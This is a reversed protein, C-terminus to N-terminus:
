AVNEGGGSDSDPSQYIDNWAIRNYWNSKDVLVENDQIFNHVKSILEQAQLEEEDTMKDSYKTLYHEVKHVCRLLIGLDGGKESSSQSVNLTGITFEFLKNIVEVKELCRVRKYTDKDLQKALYAHIGEITCTGSKQDHRADDISGPIIDGLSDQVRYLYNVAERSSWFPSLEIIDGSDSEVVRPLGVNVSLLNQIVVSDTLASQDFPGVERCTNVLREGDVRYHEHHGHGYGSNYVRFNCQGNELKVVEYYMAHGEWGAIFGGSIMMKEGPELLTIEEQVAASLKAMGDKYEQMKNADGYNEAEWRLMYLDEVHKQVAASREMQQRVPHDEPVGIDSLIQCYSRVATDGAMGQLRPDSSAAISDLTCHIAVRQIHAQGPRYQRDANRATSDPDATDIIVPDIYSELSQNIISNLTDSRTITSGRPPLVPPGERRIHSIRGNFISTDFHRTRGFLALSTQNVTRIMGKQTQTAGLGMTPVHRGFISQLNSSIVPTSAQPTELTKATEWQLSDTSSTNTVLNM